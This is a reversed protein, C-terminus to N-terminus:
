RLSSGGEGAIPALMEINDIVVLKSGWIDYTKPNRTYPEFVPSNLLLVIRSEARRYLICGTWSSPTPLSYELLGPERREEYINYWKYIRQKPSGAYVTDTCVTGTAIILYMPNSEVEGKSSIEAYTEGMTDQLVNDVVFELADRDCTGYFCSYSVYAKWPDYYWAPNMYSISLLAKPVLVSNSWELRLYRITGYGELFTNLDSSNLVIYKSPTRIVGDAYILGGASRVADELSTSYDVVTVPDDGYMSQSVQAKLRLTSALVERPPVMSLTSFGQRYGAQEEDCPIIYLPGTVPSQFIIYRSDLDWRYVNVVQAQQGGNDYVICYPNDYVRIAYWAGKEADIVRISGAGSWARPKSCLVSLTEADVIKRPPSLCNHLPDGNTDYFTIGGSRTIFAVIFDENCPVLVKAERGHLPTSYMSGNLGVVLVREVPDPVGGLITLNAEGVGTYPNCKTINLVAIPTSVEVATKVVRHQVFGYTNMVTAVLLMTSAIVAITFIALTITESLGRM